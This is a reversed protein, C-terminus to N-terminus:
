CKWRIATELIYDLPCWSAMSRPAAAATALKLTFTIPLTSPPPAPQLDIIDGQPTLVYVRDKFVDSKWGEVLDDADEGEQQLNLLSRLGVSRKNM